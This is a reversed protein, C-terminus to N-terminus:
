SFSKAANVLTKAAQYKSRFDADRMREAAAHKSLAETEAIFTAAKTIKDAVAAQADTVIKDAKKQIDDAKIFKAKAAWMSKTAELDRELLEELTKMTWNECLEHYSMHLRDYAFEDRKKRLTVLIGGASSNKFSEIEYAKPAGEWDVKARNDVVEVGQAALERKRRNTEKMQDSTYVEERALQTLGAKNNSNGFWNAYHALSIVQVGVALTMDSSIASTQVSLEKAGNRAHFEAKEADTMESYKKAM